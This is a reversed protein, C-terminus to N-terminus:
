RWSECDSEERLPMRRIPEALQLIRLDSRAQGPHLNPSPTCQALLVHPLPSILGVVQSFSRFAFPVEAIALQAQVWTLRLGVAPLYPDGAALDLETSRTKFTNQLGRLLAASHPLRGM